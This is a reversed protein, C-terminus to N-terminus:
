FVTELKVQTVVTSGTEYNRTVTVVPFGGQTMWPTMVETLSVADPLWKAEDSMTDWFDSSGSSTSNRFVLDSEANYNEKEKDNTPYGGGLSM